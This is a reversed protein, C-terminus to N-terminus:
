FFNYQFSRLARATVAGCFAAAALCFVSGKIAFIIVPSLLVGAVAIWRIEQHSVPHVALRGIGTALLFLLLVYVTASSLAGLWTYKQSALVPASLTAICVSTVLPWVARAWGPEARRTQLLLIVIRNRPLVRRGCNRTM